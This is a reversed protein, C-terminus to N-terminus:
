DRIEGVLPMDAEDATHITQSGEVVWQVGGDAVGHIEEHVDHENIGVVMLPPIADGFNFLEGDLAAAGGSASAGVGSGASAGVGLGASAGASSGASADASLGGSAGASLGRSAGASSGGDDHSDGADPMWGDDLASGLGGWGGGGHEQKSDSCWDSSCWWDEHDAHGNSDDIDMAHLQQQQQPQVGGYGYHRGTIGRRESAYTAAAEGFTFPIAADDPQAGSGEEKGILILTVTGHSSM